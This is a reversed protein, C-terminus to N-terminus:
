KLRAEWMFDLNSVGPDVSVNLTFNAAGITNVWWRGYDATGQESFCINVITPTVSLGHAVVKTTTGSTISSSGSNETIWGMNHRITNSAGADILNATNGGDRLDNNAVFNNDGGALIRIGYAQNAGKRCFNDVISCYDGLVTIGNLYGGLSPGNNHCFNSSILSYNCNSELAIGSGGNDFCHNGVVQCSQGFVQIGNWTNNHCLNGQILLNTSDSGVKIGSNLNYSCVNGSIINKNGTTECQIGDTAAGYAVNNVIQNFYATHLVINRDESSKTVNNAIINYNSNLYIVINQRKSGTCLCNTIRNYSSGNFYIGRGSMAISTGMDKVTVQDIWSDTVTTFSIGMAGTGVITTQLAKSGDLIGGRILINSKSTASLIVPDDGPNATLKIITNPQMLLQVNSNLTIPAVNNKYFTGQSLIVAGGSAPLSDIAAQIQVQDAVGDCNYSAIAKQMSTAEDSAVFVYPLLDKM